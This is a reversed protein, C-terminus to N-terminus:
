SELAMQERAAANYVRVSHRRWGSNNLREIIADRQYPTMSEDYRQWLIIEDPEEFEGIM